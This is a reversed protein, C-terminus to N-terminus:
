FKRMCKPEGPEPRWIAGFLTLSDPPPLRADLASIAGILMPAKTTKSNHKRWSSHWEFSRILAIGNPGIRVGAGTGLRNPLQKVLDHCICGVQAANREFEV